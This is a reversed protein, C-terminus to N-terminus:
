VSLHAENSNYSPIHELLSVLKIFHQNRNDFSAHSASRRVKPAPDSEPAKETETESPPNVESKPIPVARRGFILRTIQYIDEITKEDAGCAIAQSVIYPCTDIVKNFILQREDVALALLDEADGMQLQAAGQKKPPLTVVLAPLLGVKELEDLVMTAIHSTGFFAFNISRMTKPIITM